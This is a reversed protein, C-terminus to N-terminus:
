ARRSTEREKKRESMILMFTTTVDKVGAAAANYTV